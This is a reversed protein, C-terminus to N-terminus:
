TNFIYVSKIPIFKSFANNIIIETLKLILNYVHMLILSIISEFGFLKQSLLGILHLFYIFDSM